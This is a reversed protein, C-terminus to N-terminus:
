LFSAYPMLIDHAFWWLVSRQLDQREREQQLVAAANLARKERHARGRGAASALATGGETSGGGSYQVCPPDQVAARAFSHRSPVTGTKVLPVAAAGRNRHNRARRHRATHPSLVVGDAAHLFRTAPSTQRSGAHLREREDVTFPASPYIVCFSPASTCRRLQRTGRSVRCRLSPSSYSLFRLRASWPQWKVSRNCGSSACGNSCSSSSGTGPTVSTSSSDSTSSDSSTAALSRHKLTKLNRSRQRREERSLHLLEMQLAVIAPTEAAVAAAAATTEHKLNGAEEEAPGVLKERGETRVVNLIRRRFSTALSRVFSFSQQRQRQEQRAAPPRAFHIPLSEIPGPRRHLETPCHVIVCSSAMSTCGKAATRFGLLCVHPM